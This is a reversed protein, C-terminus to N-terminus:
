QFIDMYEFVILSNSEFTDTSPIVVSSNVSKNRKCITSVAVQLEHKGFQKNPYRRLFERMVEEPRYYQLAIEKIEARHSAVPEYFQSCWTNHFYERCSKADMSCFQSVKKWMGYRDKSSLSLMFNYYDSINHFVTNHYVQVYQQVASSFQNDKDLIM